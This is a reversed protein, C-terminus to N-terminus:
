KVPNSTGGITIIIPIQRKYINRPINISINDAMNKVIGIMKGATILKLKSGTHNPTITTKM